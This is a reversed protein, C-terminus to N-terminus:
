KDHLKTITFLDYAIKCKYFKAFGNNNFDDITENCLITMIDKANANRERPLNYEMKILLDVIDSRFKERYNPTIKLKFPNKDSLSIKRRTEHNTHHHTKM